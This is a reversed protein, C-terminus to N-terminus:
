ATSSAAPSALRNKHSKINQQFVLFEDGGFRAVFDEPRLMERLRGAVACLLQDGCPHGLTDNVQKFQDLDVFLLASLQTQDPVVQALLYLVRGIARLPAQTVGQGSGARARPQRAGRLPAAGACAHTGNLGSGARGTVRPILEEALAVGVADLDADFHSLAPVLGRADLVPFTCIVSVDHGIRLGLDSLESYVANALCEHTALIATPARERSAFLSRDAEALRGDHLPLMRVAQPRLGTAEAEARLVRFATTEYNHPQEGTAVAIRRHGDRVFIRFAEAAMSEFDFDVFPFDDLGASRGFAVYDVGTAKLYAIRPDREVTGSIIVADAIRRQVIRQLNELPDEDPGRFLVILDLSQRRLMRRAGELVMFLGSNTSPASGRTPIVAAIIGTRGSRLSRGSQDPVYGARAAAAKVRARTEPNVDPRDNLARSVTGISLQLEGALQRIGM